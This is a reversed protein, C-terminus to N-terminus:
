LLFISLKMAIKGWTAPSVSINSRDKTASLQGKKGQCHIRILHSGTVVDNRRQTAKHQQPIVAFPSLLLNGEPPGVPGSFLVLPDMLSSWCTGQPAIPGSLLVLLGVSSFWPKSTAAPLDGESDKVSLCSCPLSALARGM